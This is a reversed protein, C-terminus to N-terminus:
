TGSTLTKKHIRERKRKKTQSPQPAAFARMEEGTMYSAVIAALDRMNQEVRLYTLTAAVCLPAEWVPRLTDAHTEAYQIAVSAHPMTNDDRFQVTPLLPRYARRIEDYSLCHLHDQGALKMLPHLFDSVVLWELTDAVISSRSRRWVGYRNVAEIWGYLICGGVYSIALPGKIATLLVLLWNRREKAGTDHQSIQEQFSERTYYVETDDNLSHLTAACYFDMTTNICQQYLELIRGPSIKACCALRELQEEMPLRNRTNTNNWDTFYAYIDACVDEDQAVHKRVLADTLVAKPRKVNSADGM